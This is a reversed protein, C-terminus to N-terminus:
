SWRKGSAALDAEHLSCMKKMRNSQFEPGESVLIMVRRKVSQVSRGLHESIGRLSSSGTYFCEIYDDEDKRWRNDHTAM